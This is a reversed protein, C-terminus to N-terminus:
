HCTIHIDLMKEVLESEVQQQTNVTNNIIRRCIIYNELPINFTHVKETHGEGFIKAAMDIVIFIFDVAIKYSM